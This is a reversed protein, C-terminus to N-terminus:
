IVGLPILCDIVLASGTGGLATATLVGATTIACHPSVAAAYSGCPINYPNGPFYAPPFTFITGPAAPVTLDAVIQLENHPTKRYALGNIGNGSATWTGTLVARHWTDTSVISPAAATGGTATLVGDITLGTTLLQLVGASLRQLFTDAPAAGSGWQMKGSARVSLRASTDGSVAIAISGNGSATEFISITGPNTSTPVSMAINLAGGTNASQVNVLGHSTLGAPYANGFSDAGALPAIAVLLNGLAPVGSYVFMGSSNIVFDTGNFTGRITLNNFEASGDQNVTWGSVGAVYNPSRLAQRILTLGAALPNSFPM